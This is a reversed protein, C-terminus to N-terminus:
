RPANKALIDVLSIGISIWPVVYVITFSMLRRRSFLYDPIDSITAIHKEIRYTDGSHAVIRVRERDLQELKEEKAIRINKGIYHLPVFIYFPNCCFFIAYLPVLAAATHTGVRYYIMILALGMIIISLYVRYMIDRLLRLGGMGDRDDPDLRLLPKSGNAGKGLIDKCMLVAFVGVVNHRIMYYM